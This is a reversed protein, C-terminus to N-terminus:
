PLDITYLPHAARYTDWLRFHLIFVKDVSQHVLSDAGRYQGDVDAINNPQILAHYVSTYFAIKEKESGEAKLKGLNSEWTRAAEAKVQEFSKHRTEALLNKHAGAVSVGSVGVKGEIAEGPKLDFDLVLRRKSDGDIFRHGSFAHNFIATFYVKKDVWQSTFASGSISTKSDISIEGESVHEALQEPSEVLGSQMDVLLHAKGAKTFTYRHLGTHASATLQAKISNDSLVVEYYGPSAKEQQHSFKSQFKQPQEGQFPFFLVDGLDVGGTGSLHTHAFGTIVTDEYRYGSCYNWGFNGTEPSLQVIGFPVTAGPFTHGTASTGIFTNVYKNYSQANAEVFLILVVLIVILKKM